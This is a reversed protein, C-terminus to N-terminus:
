ILGEEAFSFYKNDGIIIHDIIPINLVKSVEVLRETTLIDSDSPKISGSPHNHAIIIKNANSVIAMKFVEKPHVISSESTGKSCIEIATPECQTNLAIVIFTEKANDEILGKILYYCDNSKRLIRPEYFISKDRCLKLSVIEVRKKM